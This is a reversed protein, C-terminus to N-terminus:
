RKKQNITRLILDLNLGTFNAFEEIDILGTRPKGLHKKIRSMLKKAYSNSKGTLTEVDATYVVIRQYM